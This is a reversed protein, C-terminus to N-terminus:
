HTLRDEKRRKHVLTWRNRLCTRWHYCHAVGNESRRNRTGTQIYVTDWFFVLCKLKRRLKAV